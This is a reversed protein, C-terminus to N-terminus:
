YQKFLVCLNYMAAYNISCVYMRLVHQYILGRECVSGSLCKARTGAYM